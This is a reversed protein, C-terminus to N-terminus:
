IEIRYSIASIDTIPKRAARSEVQENLLGLLPSVIITVGATCLAAVQYVVSKGCGTPFVYFVDEGSLMAEVAEEQKGRFSLVGLAQIADGISMCSAMKFSDPTCDQVVVRRSWRRERCSWDRVNGVLRERALKGDDKGSWKWSARAVLICSVLKCTFSTHM